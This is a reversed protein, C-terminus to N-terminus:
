KTEQAAIVITRARVVARMAVIVAAELESSAATQRLVNRLSLVAADLGSELFFSNDEALERKISNMVMDPPISTGLFHARDDQPPQPPPQRIPETFRVKLDTLVMKLKGEDLPTDDWLPLRSFPDFYFKLRDGKNNAKSLYSKRLMRDFFGGAIKSEGKKFGFDELPLPAVQIEPKRALEVGPSMRAFGFCLRHLWTQDGHNMKVSLALLLEMVKDTINATKGGDSFAAMGWPEWKKFLQRVKEENDLARAEKHCTAGDLDITLDEGDNALFHYAQALLEVDRWTLANM